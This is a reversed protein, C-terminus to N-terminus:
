RRRAFQRYLKSPQARQVEARSPQLLSLWSWVTKGYAAADNTVRRSASVPNPEIRQGGQVERGAGVSGADVAVRGATRSSTRGGREHALTNRDYSLVSNRYLRINERPDISGARAHKARRAACPSTTRLAPIAENASRRIVGTAVDLDAPIRRPSDSVSLTYRRHPGRFGRASGRPAGPRPLAPSIARGSRTACRPAPRFSTRHLAASGATGRRSGRATTTARQVMLTARRLQFAPLM